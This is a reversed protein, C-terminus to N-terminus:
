VEPPLVNITIEAGSDPHYKRQIKPIKKNSSLDSIHNGWVIVILSLTLIM